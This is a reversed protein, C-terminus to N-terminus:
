IFFLDNFIFNFILYLPRSRVRARTRTRSSHYLFRDTDASFFVVVDVRLAVSPTGPVGVHM